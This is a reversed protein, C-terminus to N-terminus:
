YQATCNSKTSPLANVRGQVGELSQPHVRAESSHVGLTELSHLLERSRGERARAPTSYGRSELVHRTHPFTGGARGFGTSTEGMRRVAESVPQGGGDGSGFCVRCIQAVYLFQLSRASITVNCTRGSYDITTARWPPLGVGISGRFSLKPEVNRERQLM